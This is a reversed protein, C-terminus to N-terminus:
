CGRAFEWIWREQEATEVADAHYHRRVWGVAEQADVGALVAMSALVTGTRGMGGACGVEVHGGARAHEFAGVIAKIADDHDLPVTIRGSNSPLPTM